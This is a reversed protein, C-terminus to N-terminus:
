ATLQAQHERRPAPTLYGLSSHPRSEDYHRIWTTITAKAEDYTAFRHQRICELKPGWSCNPSATRSPRTRSSSSRVSAMARPLAAISGRPM